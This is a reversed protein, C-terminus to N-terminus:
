GKNCASCCHPASIVATTALSLTQPTSAYIAIDLLSIFQQQRCAFKSKTRKIGKPMGGASRTLTQIMIDPASLNRLYM